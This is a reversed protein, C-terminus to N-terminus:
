HQKGLYRDAVKNAKKMIALYDNATPLRKEQEYIKQTEEGLTDAIIEERIYNFEKETISMSHKNFEQIQEYFMKLEKEETLVKSTVKDLISGEKTLLTYLRKAALKVGDWALGSIVQKGLWLLISSIEGLCAHVTPAKTAEKRYLYGYRVAAIVQDSYNLNKDYDLEM